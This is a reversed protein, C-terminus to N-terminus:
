QNHVAAYQEAWGDIMAAKVKEWNAESPDSNYATLAKVISGRYADVNPQYIMAWDMKYCGAKTYESQKILFGNETKTASKFPMNGLQEAMAKSAEPDSVLWKMFGITARQDATSAYANVAWFNESGSNLAAKEEGKVGCYYPIMTVDPISQSLKTYDWSGTLFFAAKGSLFEEKPDHGGAALEKPATASNNIILDYLNKFYPMYNGTLSAPAEQWGEAERQEYYYEINALHGTIRWANDEDLDAACFADFGLQGANEHISGAVQELMSFDTIDDVSFGAKEVLTPNVAIGYCELCYPIAILKGEEDTINYATNSQLKQIETENLDLVYNAWEAASHQDNIVFLTPPDDSDMEEQLVDQYSGSDVTKIKVEVGTEDQYQQALEQLTEDLEPKFNLWYVYGKSGGIGCSVLSFAIMVVLLLAVIRKSKM